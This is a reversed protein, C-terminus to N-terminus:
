TQVDPLKENYAGVERFTRSFWNEPRV